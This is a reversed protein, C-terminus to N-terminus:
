AYAGSQQQGLLDLLRARGEDTGMFEAPRRNGLAPLPRELWTAVWQEADFDILSGSEAVVTRVKSV